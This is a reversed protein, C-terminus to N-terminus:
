EEEKFSELLEMIKELSEEENEGEVEITIHTGKHMGAMLVNLIVKPNIRRGDDLVIAINDNIKSCLETLMSAPRAHIGTKNKVIFEKSVM